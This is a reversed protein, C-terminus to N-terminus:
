AVGALLVRIVDAATYSDQGAELYQAVNAVDNGATILVGEVRRDSRVQALGVNAPLANCICKRGVTDELKGGKREYHELPESACRYGVTGDEKAYMQRLYGLDCVRTRAEYQEADYLTGELSVVKFPFGTPSALPDTFIGVKRQASLGVVRRKLELDLGSEECFAFATGVQVGTAGLALAEALRGPRGYSGALWFPLGLAKIKELEPEDRPGYIPQGLEDLQMQGRPPANHGGATSGEVIFGDVRGNSKKALTMALTASSVIALFQPRKLEPLPRGEFFASPDFVSEYARGAAAGQVDVRLRVTEGRALGDLMGPISRPIGAGMLVYDVGALMAGFLVPLTPLQIKELLNIGVVGTHGEKALFVEVFNAVVTLEDFRRGPNLTPMPVGKFAVGEAKGGELYYETWVRDAIERVPFADFARRLHGGEDGLQLRRAVTVALATGSVVGLQGAGAVAKALAWGSIAVGM